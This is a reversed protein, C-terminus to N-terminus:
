QTQDNARYTFTAKASLSQPLAVYIIPVTLGTEERFRRQYQKADALGTPKTYIFAEIPLRCPINQPWTKLKMDNPTNFSDPLILRGARMGELFRGAAANNQSDRVNFSCMAEARNRGEVLDGRYKAEWKAATDVVPTQQECSKSFVPYKRHEGCGGEARDNSSGDVPFFCMIEIMEKGPPTDLIPYFIFGSDYTYALRKINYDSRLFSFSVGGNTESIPSPNWVDYRTTFKSGRLILGSCLFAPKSAAGCNDRTDYYRRELEAAVEEGSKAVISSVQNTMLVSRQATIGQTAVPDVSDVSTCGATLLIVALLISKTM